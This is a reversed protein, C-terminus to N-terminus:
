ARCLKVEALNRVVVASLLVEINLIDALHSILEVDVSRSQSSWANNLDSWCHASTSCSFFLFDYDLEERPNRVGNILQKHHFDGM